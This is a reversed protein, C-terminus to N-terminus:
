CLVNALVIQCQSVKPSKSYKLQLILWLDSIRPLGAAKQQYNLSISRSRLPKRGYGDSRDIVAYKGLVTAICDTYAINLVDTLIYSMPKSIQQLTAAKAAM